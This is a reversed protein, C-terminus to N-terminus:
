IQALFDQIFLLAGGLPVTHRRLVSLHLFSADDGFPSGARVYERLQPLWPELYEALLGGLVVECDLIM